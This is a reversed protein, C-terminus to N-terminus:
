LIKKRNNKVKKTLLSQKNRLKEKKQNLHFFILSKNLWLCTKHCQIKCLIHNQILLHCWLTQLHQFHFLIITLLLTTLFPSRNSLIKFIIIKNFNIQRMQKSKCKLFKIDKMVRANRSNLLRSKGTTWSVNPINLKSIYIFLPIVSIFKKVTVNIVHQKNIM